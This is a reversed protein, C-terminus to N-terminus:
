ALIERYMKEMKYLSSKLIYENAVHANGGDPGWTIVPIGLTALINDDAVSPRIYTVLKKGLVDFVIKELEKQYPINKFEYGSLYETARPKLSISTGALKEIVEQIKEITDGPGLLVEIEADSEGCVSMGNQEAHVRSLQVVSYPSKFIRERQTYLKNIFQGLIEIADVGEKYKAIHAPKGKFKINFVVRGTRGVALSEMGYGFNPEASIILSVDKFFGKSSKVAKWAGQSYNEEDVALFVKAPTQSNIIASIFAAIGGKMDYAGLGYLKEGKSTLLFPDTKWDSVNAIPVTDLHGYFMVKAGRKYEAFINSRGGDVKQTKVRFGHKSLYGSLWIGIKEENPYTSPTAVLEKALNILNHM